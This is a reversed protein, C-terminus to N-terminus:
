IPSTEKCLPGTSRFRRLASRLFLGAENLVFFEAAPGGILLLLPTLGGTGPPEFGFLVGGDEGGALVLEEPEVDGGLLGM